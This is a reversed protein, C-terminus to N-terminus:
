DNSLEIKAKIPKNLDLGLDINDGLSWLSQDIKLEIQINELLGYFEASISRAGNHKLPFSLNCLELKTELKNTNLM